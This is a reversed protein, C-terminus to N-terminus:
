QINDPMLLLSGPAQTIRWVWTLDSSAGHWAVLIATEDYGVKRNVWAVFNNWVTVINDANVISPHNPTLKHTRVAERDWEADSEPNVDYQNFIAHDRMINKATDGAPNVTGVYNGKTRM